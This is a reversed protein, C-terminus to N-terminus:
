NSGQRDHPVTVTASATARNGSADTASYTVTYIRGTKNNGERKVKLKFSRDDTGFAADHIDNEELPENAVISELKIEPQPDYDDTVAIRAAVATPKDNPPWLTAPDLTVSLTPPTVDLRELRGTYHWFSPGEDTSRSYGFGVTFHGNLYAPDPKPVTVSFNFTQGPRLSPAGHMERSWDISFKTTEEYKLVAADWGQPSTFIGGLRQSMGRHDGFESPPGWYSGTPYVSLEPEDNVVTTPDDGKDGRNGISVSGISRGATLNSIQYHYEVNQGAKIAYVTAKVPEGAYLGVSGLLMALGVFASYAQRM